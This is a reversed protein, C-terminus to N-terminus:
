IKRCKSVFAGMERDISTTHGVFWKVLFMLVEGMQDRNAEIGQTKKGLEEIIKKHAMKQEHYKPYAYTQMLLEESQFHFNAYRKLEGMLDNIKQTEAEEEMLEHIRAIIKLFRKHQSDVEEVGIM